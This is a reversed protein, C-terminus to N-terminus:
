DSTAVPRETCARCIPCKLAWSSIRPRNIRSPMPWPGSLHRLTYFGPGKRGNIRLAGLLKATEQSVPNTSPDKVWSQGYKTIFDPGADAEIKPETRKSLVDRRAAVTEPWLRCRRPIGTRPRPLDIFGNDLDLGALPSTGCDANGFGRNIGLLIM